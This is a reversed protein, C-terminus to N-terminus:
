YNGISISLLNTHSRIAEDEDTLRGTTAKHHYRLTLKKLNILHILASDNFTVSSAIKLRTLSTLRSFAAPTLDNDQIIKLTNLRTLNYLTQDCVYYDASELLHLTELGDPLCLRANRSLCQQNICLYRLSTLQSFQSGRMQCDTGDITLMELKTLNSFYRPDDNALNVREVHLSRLTPAIHSYGASTILTDTGLSLSKLRTLNKLQTDRIVSSGHVTLDLLNPLYDFILNLLKPPASFFELCKLNSFSKAMHLLFPSDIILDTNSCDVYEFEELREFVVLSELHQVTLLAGQDVRLRKLGKWGSAHKLNFPTDPTLTLERINTMFAFNKSTVDGRFNFSLELSRVNKFLPIYEPRIMRWTMPPVEQVISFLDCLFERPSMSPILITACRTIHLYKQEVYSEYPVMVAVMYSFIYMLVEVPISFINVDEKFLRRTTDVFANKHSRKM